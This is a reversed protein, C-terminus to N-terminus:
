VVDPINTETLLMLDYNGKDVDQIVQPLAFGCGDRINYMGLNIVMPRPPRRQPLPPVLNRLEGGNM